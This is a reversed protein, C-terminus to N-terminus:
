AAFTVYIFRFLELLICVLKIKDLFILNVKVLNFGLFIM